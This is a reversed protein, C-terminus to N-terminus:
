RYRKTEYVGDHNYVNSIHNSSNKEFSTEGGLMFNLFHIITWMLMIVAQFSTYVHLIKKAIM